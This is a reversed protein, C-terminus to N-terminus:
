PDACCRFGIFESQHDQAQHNTDNCSSYQSTAGGGQVVCRIETGKECADIWEAVNGSMDFLGPYGGVCDKRSGVAEVYHPGFSNSDSCVGAEM